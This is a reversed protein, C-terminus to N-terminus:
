NLPSPRVWSDIGSGFYTTPSASSRLPSYRIRRIVDPHSGTMDIREGPVGAIEDMRRHWAHQLSRSISDPVPDRNGIPDRLVCNVWLHAPKPQGHVNLPTNVTFYIVTNISRFNGTMFLRDLIHFVCEPELILDGENALLLLGKADTMGLRQKTSSIQTNAKKVRKMVRTRLQEVIEKACEIPLTRSDILVQSHPHAVLPPVLGAAVWSAYRESVFAKFSSESRTDHELSKLEGITGAEAFVYDANQFDPSSPADDAFVRGGIARVCAHM